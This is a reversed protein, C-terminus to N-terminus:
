PSSGSTASQARPSTAGSRASCRSTSTTRPWSFGDAPRTPSLRWRMSSPPPRYPPKEVIVHKGADLAARTLALHSAPPTAILAIQVRPDALAAEYSHFSGAGDYRRAYEDARAADRSAYFRQVDAFRRLTRSHLRTAFGCGLLAIGLASM